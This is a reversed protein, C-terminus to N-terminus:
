QCWCVVFCCWFWCWDKWMSKHMQHFCIIRKFNIVVLFFEGDFRIIDFVNWRWDISITRKVFKVSKLLFSFFKIACSVDNEVFSDAKLNFFSKTKDNNLNITTIVKYSKTNQDFYIDNFSRNMDRIQQLLPSLGYDTDVNRTFRKVLCYFVLAVFRKM